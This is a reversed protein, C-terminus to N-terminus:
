VLRKIKIKRKPKPKSKSNLNFNLKSTSKSISEEEVLLQNRYYTVAAVILAWIASVVVSLYFIKNLQSASPLFVSFILLIIDEILLTWTWILFYNWREIPLDFRTSFQYFEYMIFLYVSHLLIVFAMRIPTQFTSIPFVFATYIIAQLLIGALQFEDGPAKALYARPVKLIYEALIAGTFWGLLASSFKFVWFELLDSSTSVLFFDFIMWLVTILLSLWWRSFSYAWGQFVLFYFAYTLLM